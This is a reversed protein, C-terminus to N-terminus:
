MRKGCPASWEVLRSHALRIAKHQGSHETRACIRRGQSQGAPAHAPTPLLLMQLGAGVALSGAAAPACM